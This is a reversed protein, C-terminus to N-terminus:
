RMGLYKNEEALHSLASSMDNVVMNSTNELYSGTSHATSKGEAYPTTLRSSNQSPGVHALGTPTLLPGTNLNEMSISSLNDFLNDTSISNLNPGTIDEFVPPIENPLNKREQDSTSSVQNCGPSMQSNMHRAGNQQFPQQQGLYPNANGTGTMNINNNNYCPQQQQQQQPPPPPMNCNVRNGWRHPQQYPNQAPFMANQAPLNTNQMPMQMNQQMQMNPAQQMNGNGYQQQQQQQQQRQQMQQIQQQRVMRQSVKGRVPIQSQSIHPVQVMPSNREEKAPMSPGVGTGPVQQYFGQNQGYPGWQMNMGMNNPFPQQPAVGMNGNQGCSGQYMGTQAFNSQGMGPMLMHNQAMAQSMPMYAMNSPMQQQQQQQEPPHHLPDGYMPAGQQCSAGSPMGHKADMGQATNWQQMSTPKNVTHQQLGPSPQGQQMQPAAPSPQAPSAQSVAYPSPQSAAYPSPQSAAYPSPQSAAYPSPQSAAYPSPQPGVPSPQPCRTGPSPQACPSPLPCRSGPSPQPQACPSPMVSGPSQMSDAIFDPAGDVAQQEQTSKLQENLFDQMDDPILLDDADDGLRQGCNDDLGSDRLHMEDGHNSYDTAISSRSSMFQNSDARKQLSRMPLAKMSNLSHFRQLEKLQNPEMGSVPDSARRVNRNPIEHPLPTHSPTLGASGHSLRSHPNRLSPGQTQLNTSSGLNTKEFQATVNGISGSESSRRPLNGTIDYEYPSNTISLRSIQSADSSRRSNQPYPSADSRVSSMYSSLTSANSDRRNGHYSSMGLTEKASLGAFLSCVVYRSSLFYM